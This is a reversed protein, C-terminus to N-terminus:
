DVVPAYTKWLIGWRQMGGHANLLSSYKNIRGVPFRKIKFAWITLITKAGKPMKNRDFIEWHDCDKHNIVEKVMSVSFEKVDDRKLTQSLTFTDSSDLSRFPFHHIKNITGYFFNNMEHSHFHVVSAIFLKTGNYASKLCTILGFM